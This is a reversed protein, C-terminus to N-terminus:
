LGTCSLKRVNAYKRNEINFMRFKKINMTPLLKKLLIKDLNFIFVMAGSKTIWIWCAIEGKKIVLIQKFCKKLFDMGSQHSQKKLLWFNKRICEKPTIKPYKELDKGITEKYYNAIELIKPIVKRAPSSEWIQIKISNTTNEAYVMYINMLFRM